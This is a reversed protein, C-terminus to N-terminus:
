NGWIKVENGDPDLFYAFQGYSQKEIKFPSIGKSKLAQLSDEFSDVRYTISINGACARSKKSSSQHIGFVLPGAATEIEAFYVGNYEQTLIGFRSYWDALSKADKCATITVSGVSLIKPQLANKSFSLHPLFFILMLIFIRM